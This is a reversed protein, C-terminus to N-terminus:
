KDGEGNRKGRAGRGFLLSCAFLGTLGGFLGFFIGFLGSVIYFDPRFAGAFLKVLIKVLGALLNAAGEILRVILALLIFPHRRNL